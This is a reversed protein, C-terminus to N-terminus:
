RGTTSAWFTICAPLSTAPLSLFVPVTRNRGLPIGISDVGLFLVPEGGIAPITATAIAPSLGSVTASMQQSGAPGLTWRAAAVGSANTVASVPAVTGGGAIVAFTVTVGPVNYGFTDTVRVKISDALATSAPASQGNGSIVTVATPPAAVTREARNPSALTQLTRTRALVSIALGSAVADLGAVREAATQVRAGARCGAM